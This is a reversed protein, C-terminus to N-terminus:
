GIVYDVNFSAHTNLKIRCDKWLNADLMKTLVKGGAAGDRSVSQAICCIYWTGRAEIPGLPSNNPVLGRETVDYQGDVRRNMLETIAFRLMYTGVGADDHANELFHTRNPAGIILVVYIQNGKILTGGPDKFQISVKVEDDVVEGITFYNKNLSIDPLIFENKLDWTEEHQYIKDKDTHREFYWQTRLRYPEGPIPNGLYEIQAKVVEKLTMEDTEPTTQAEGARFPDLNDSLAEIGGTTMATGIINTALNGGIGVGIAGAVGLAAKENTSFQDWDFVMVPGCSMHGTGSPDYVFEDCVLDYGTLIPDGRPDPQGGGAAYYIAVGGGVLLGIAIIGLGILKWLPDSFPLDGHTGRFPKRPVITLTIEKLLMLPPHIQVAPHLFLQEVPDLCYVEHVANAM